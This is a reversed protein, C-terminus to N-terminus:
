VSAHLNVCGRNPLALMSAGLILGFAAVVVLDPQADVIPQRAGASRLSGVQYVPLGLQDALQKVPPSQLKRGRGSPRDPQTVTLVVEVEALAAVADLAPCAFAPTGMYVIRAAM